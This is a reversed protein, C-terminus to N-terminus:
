GKYWLWKGLEKYSIKKGYMLIGTRYIKAALWTTFIFGGVLLAVSLVLEWLPVSFPLRAMMSVPSTFPIISMWFALASDPNESIAPITMISFIIPMSIPFMFQYMDSQSDTAAALAAFLSSYLLYGGLFFFVFMTALLGWPLTGLAFNVKDLASGMNSGQQQAMNQAAQLEEASPAYFVGIAVSMLISLVIWVTFQTLGVLAIGIIKGMMLQFPRVSSIIIEVVRNQKEEHVGRMVLGGYLFIFIYILFGGVFSAATAAGSSSAHEGADSTMRTSITLETKLTDILGKNLNLHAIKLDRIRDALISEIQSTMTLGINNSAYLIFSDPHFIDVKTPVYLVMDPGDEEELSNKAAEIDQIGYEFAISNDSILTGTFLGSEDVVRITEKDEGLKAAVVPVLIFLAYFVPALLTLVIFTKNRVRVIYERKIITSIKNM